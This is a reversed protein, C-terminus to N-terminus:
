LEVQAGLEVVRNPPIRFFETADLAFNSLLIFIQSALPTKTGRRRAVIKERGVFFSTDMLNLRLGSVRCLALARPIDAEEMFGYRLTLTYFNHDLAHLELRETEPVRPIDEIFVRMLVNREHLVRNHKMNHLLTTPVVNIDRVLYIATGPVRHPSEPRLNDLFLDLPMLESGRQKMLRNRGGIWCAMVIYVLMAVALPFWGGEVFKLLNASFFALDVTLFLCFLGALRWLPWGLGRHLYRFALGTTISMTGTVAIGYAAGLADSSKFALVTCIVAVLLMGNIRPVYVQGIAEESTHTVLMRPLYGLQVAQNTMSFAGSIVAQSAIITAISSLVVMPILAWGPALRFFPNDIAAPNELLLGGQGFYNLLLAPFVLGFWAKRIPKAGFHGMDAYLAEGGTVALVVSGLLVWGAAPDAALLRLGCMPNLAMLIRPDRAIEIAGVLGIVSFWVLMVPGFLAGVHATGRSQGVFLIVLLILTLPIVVPTFVPSAVKLGEVASLVSVAPTIIGDGYFLAAGLLGAGLVWGASRGGATRMVLATLALIGGEGRNDARMVVLVYKVTVVIMLAWTILSLAGLIRPEAVNSGGDFCQKFAYLPSTGIDGYVV